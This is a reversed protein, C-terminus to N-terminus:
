SETSQSLTNMLDTHSGTVERLDQRASPVLSKVVHAMPFSLGRGAQRGTQRDRQRDTQRDTQIHLNDESSAM